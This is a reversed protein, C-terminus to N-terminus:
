GTTDDIAVLDKTANQTDVVITEVGTFSHVTGGNWRTAVAGGGDNSIEVTDTVPRDVTVTLVSGIQVGSGSTRSTKLNFPHERANAAARDTPAFQASPM